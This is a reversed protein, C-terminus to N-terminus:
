FVGPIIQGTTLYFGVAAVVGIIAAIGNIKEAVVKGDELIQNSSTM